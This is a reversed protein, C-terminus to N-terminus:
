QRSKQFPNLEQKNRHNTTRFSRRCFWSMKTLAAGSFSVGSSKATKKWVQIYAAVGAAFLGTALAALLYFVWVSDIQWFMERHPVM